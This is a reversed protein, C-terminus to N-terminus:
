RSAREAKRPRFLEILKRRMMEEGGPLLDFKPTNDIARLIKQGEDDQHMSLLVEKLRNKLSRDLDKRASVLHRPFSETEALVAIDTRQKGDITAYDDNSFAGAAVRKSLVLNVVGTSDAGFIYGVEGPAVKAELGPKEALWLGRRLLLLKPLFYGSTSGPDEFVVMKGRLDDLRNTGSDRKSFIIGRYEDMGSKWRRLILVAAGQRNIVYTPYASEMYFDVRQEDLLKALQLASPAIVVKGDIPAVTALRRGVYRVFDQFHEEIQRQSVASILGLSITKANLAQPTQGASPAGALMVLGFALTFPLVCNWPQKM